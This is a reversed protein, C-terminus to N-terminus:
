CAITLVSFNGNKYLILCTLSHAHSHMANNCTVPRMFDLVVKLNKLVTITSFVQIRNFLLMVMYLTFHVVIMFVTSFSFKREVLFTEM